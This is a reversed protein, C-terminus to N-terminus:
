RTPDFLVKLCGDARDAFARYGAAAETLPMRHTFVDVPNLRGYRILPILTPWTSAVPATTFRMTVNRIIMLPVAIPFAFNADVGVVSVTRSTRVASIAATLTADQGVAEIVADAGRGGTAALVQEVIDGKTGDIPEAGLREAMALRAPVRDAALIRGAGLVQAAQLAYLGVPGLGIVLVTAGPTIDARVAATWGTPLADTLLVANDVGIDQPVPMLWADAAPIAVAEAHGGPLSDDGGLVRMGGGTCDIPNGAACGACRGCGLVPSVLVRDGVKIRGVEAGTEIVTGVVEHGPRLGSVPFEGEYFHLDSGCLASATVEVIAGDPGSLVPDAVTEVSVDRTGNIVVARM